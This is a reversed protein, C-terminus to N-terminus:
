TMWSSLMNYYQYYVEKDFATKSESKEQQGTSQTSPQQSTKKLNIKKTTKWLKSNIGRKYMVYLIADIWAKDYAKTVDIFTAYVPGKKTRASNVTEKFALLHGM